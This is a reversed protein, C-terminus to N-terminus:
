ARRGGRSSARCRRTAVGRRRLRRWSSPSAATGRTCPRRTGPRARAARRGRRSSWCRWSAAEARGPWCGTGAPGAVSRALRRRGGGGDARRSRRALGSAAAGRRRGRGRRATRRGGAWATRPGRCSASSPRLSARPCPPPRGGSPAGHAPAAAPCTSSPCKDDSSSGSASVTAYPPLSTGADSITRGRRTRPATSARTRIERFCRCHRIHTPDHTFTIYPTSSQHNCSPTWSTVNFVLKQIRIRSLLFRNRFQLPSNRYILFFQGCINAFLLVYAVPLM